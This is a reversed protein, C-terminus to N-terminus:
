VNHATAETVLQEVTAPACDYLINPTPDYKVIVLANGVRKCLITTGPLWGLEKRLQSPISTCYTHGNPKVKTPYWSSTDRM